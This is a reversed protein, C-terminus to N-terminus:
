DHVLVSLMSPLRSTCNPVVACLYPRALLNTRALLYSPNAHRIYTYGVGESETTNTNVPYLM